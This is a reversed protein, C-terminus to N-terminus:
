AQKLELEEGTLIFYLNQLEHVYKIERIYIGSWSWNKLESNFLLLHNQYVDFRKDFGFKVLWEDTLPIPEILDKPPNSSLVICLDNFNYSTFQFFNGSVNHKVWNGIRLENAKM